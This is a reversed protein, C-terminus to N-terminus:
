MNQVPRSNKPEDPSPPETKQVIGPCPIGLGEWLPLSQTLLARIIANDPFQLHAKRLVILGDYLAERQLLEAIFLATAEPTDPVDLRRAYAACAADQQLLTRVLPACRAASLDEVDGHPLQIREPVKHKLTTSGRSRRMKQYWDQSSRYYYHNIQCVDWVPPRSLAARVPQGATNVISHGPLCCAMHPNYFYKIRSPQVFLKVHWNGPEATPISRTYNEIQLGAPRTRHGNSGFQMWHLAVGAVHEYQMLLLRLDAYHKPVVFEDLDIFGIWSFSAGYTKLCHDYCETQKGRGRVPIITIFCEDALRRLTDRIPEDSDNDYIVFAEVGMLTHYAIWEELFPTENKAICCMGLYQHM